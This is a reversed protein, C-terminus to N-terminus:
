VFCAFAGFEGCSIFRHQEEVTQQAMRKTPAYFYGGFVCVCEPVITAVYMSVSVWESM